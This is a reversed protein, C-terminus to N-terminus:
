LIGTPKSDGLRADMIRDLREFCVHSAMDCKAWCRKSRLSLPLSLPDMECHCPLFRQPETCSLPVVIAVPQYIRSVVIVPRKKVMEPQKFGTNYDCMLVTGPKPYYTLAM